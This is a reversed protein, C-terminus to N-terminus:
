FMKWNGEWEFPFKTSIFDKPVLNDRLIGDQHEVAMLFKTIYIAAFAVDLANCLAPKKRSQLQHPNREM